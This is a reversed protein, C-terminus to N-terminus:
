AEEITETEVRQLASLAFSKREGHYDIVYALQGSTSFGEVKGYESTHSGWRVVDGVGFPRAPQELPIPEDHGNGSALVDRVGHGVERELGRAILDYLESLIGRWFGSPGKGDLGSTVIVRRSGLPEGFGVVKVTILIDPELQARTPPTITPKPGAPAPEAKPALPPAWASPQREPLPEEPVEPEPVPESRPSPTLSPSWDPKSAAPEPTIAPMRELINQLAVKIDADKYHPPLHSKLGMLLPDRILSEVDQVRAALNADSAGRTGHRADLYREIHAELAWIVDARKAAKRQTILDDIYRTAWPRQRHSVEWVLAAELTELGAGAASAEWTPRQLEDLVLHRLKVLAASDLRPFAEALEDRARDRNAESIGGTQMTAVTGAGTVYQRESSVNGTERRMRGVFPHTTATRQAIERDSWVAWEPDQLLTLVAKRKDADSRRLGHTSNAQVSFLIADRKDGQRVEAEITRWGLEEAAAVRHFGDALWYSTGDSFVVVPPFATGNEMEEAYEAITVANMMARPQLDADRQIDGIILQTM